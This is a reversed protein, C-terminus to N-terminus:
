LKQIEELLRGLRNELEIRESPSENLEHGMENYEEFDRVCDLIDNLCINKESDDIHGYQYLSLLHEFYHIRKRFSELSYMHGIDRFM